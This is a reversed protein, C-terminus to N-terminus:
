PVIVPFYSIGANVWVHAPAISSTQKPIAWSSPERLRTNAKQLSANARERVRRTYM